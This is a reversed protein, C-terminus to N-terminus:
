IFIILDDEDEYEDESTRWLEFLSPPDEFKPM